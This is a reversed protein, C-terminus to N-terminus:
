LVEKEGKKIKEKDEKKDEEREDKKEKEEKEEEEEEEKEEEEEEEEWPICPWMDIILPAQQCGLFLSSKRVQELSQHPVDQTSPHPSAIDCEDGRNGWSRWCEAIIPHWCNWSVAEHSWPDLCALYIDHWQMHRVDIYMYM